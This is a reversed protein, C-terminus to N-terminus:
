VKALDAPDAGHAAELQSHALYTRKAPSVRGDLAAAPLPTRRRVRVTVEIREDAQAPGVRKAGRVPQRDSGPISVFTHEAM